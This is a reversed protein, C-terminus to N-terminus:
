KPVTAENLMDERSQGCNDQAALVPSGGFVAPRGASNVAEEYYICPGRMQLRIPEIARRRM